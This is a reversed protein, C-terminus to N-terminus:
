GLDQPNWDEFSLGREILRITAPLFVLAAILNTGGGLLTLLGMEQLGRYDALALSGFGLMTTLGTLLLGRGTTEIVLSLRRYGMERYRELLHLGSHVGMGLIIPIVVINLFNIEFRLLHWLGLTWLLSLGVPLLALLSIGVRRFHILLILFVATVVFLCTYALDRLATKKLRSAHVVIGTVQVNITKPEGDPEGMRLRELFRDPIEDRWQGKPPYIQTMIRYQGDPTKAVYRQVITQLFPSPLNEFRLTPHREATKFLGEMRVFFPELAAPALGQERAQDLMRKRIGSWGRRFGLLRDQALRQTEAAPLFTRLSDVALIKQRELDNWSQINRYLLDNQLLANELSEGQVIAVIQNSPTQFHDDIREQLRLYSRSPQQLGSIDADFTVRSAAIGFYATVLIGAALTTKPRTLVMAALQPLGLTLLPRRRISESRSKLRIAILSPTMLLMSALCCVLGTAAILGLEQFGKFTTLTLGLFGAATTLGGTIIGRGTRLLIIEIAEGVDRGRHVEELLRNYLLIGYDVGLGVLVAGMSATIITLHQITAATLGLTWVIGCALPIGTFYLVEFRRFTLYFLAVVAVFSTILTAYFDHRVIRTNRVAEIHPGLFSLRLSDKWAPNRKMLGDRTEELFDSLRQAFVVDNSSSLSFETRSGRPPPSVPHLIMLLMRGDESLFYGDRLNLKAPGTAFTLRKRIIHNLGVPDQLLRKREGAGIPHILRHSLRVLNKQTSEPSFLEHIQDWDTDTLLNVIYIDSAPGSGEMLSAANPDLRYDVSFLYRRDLLDHAIEPANELLFEKGKDGRAEVVALMFDFSGFDRLAERTIQHIESQRPFLATVNTDLTLHRRIAVVCIATLAACGLLVLVPFRHTLRALLRLLWPM